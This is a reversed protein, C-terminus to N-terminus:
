PGPPCLRRGGPCPGGGEALREMSGPRDAPVQALLTIDESPDRELELYQLIMYFASRFAEDLTLEEPLDAAADHAMSVSQKIQAGLAAIVPAPGGGSRRSSAGAEGGLNPRTAAQASLATTSLKTESSCFTRFRRLEGGDLEVGREGRRPLRRLGHLGSDFLDPASCEDNTNFRHQTQRRHPRPGGRRPEERRAHLQPRGISSRFRRVPDEKFGQQASTCPVGAPHHLISYREAM